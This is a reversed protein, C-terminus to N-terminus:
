QSEGIRLKIESSNAKLEPAYMASARAPLASFRGPVEARLRYAVSHAGRALARVFFAVREDRFEVYAGLDNGTYGSRVEVPEFGAAKYDEFVVYEYDNKSAIELEIEVLDGSKVEGDNALPVRRYKEVKQALVQGRDGAATATAGEERELKYVKREVKVELGAPGILDELTFNTLYANFYVPGTGTRRLELQHEGATLDAGSVVLRNDFTVLNDRRIKETKLTKGDLVVEVTMDPADEGSATVYDALAEVCVATDRTCNWYTAHKRNNVLYKALRSAREGKPDTAALLKLYYAQAEYESGYWCWWWNNEPIRLYATQNEADQVLFQDINEIVMALKSGDGVKKLALGFMAKAYVPLDIRDRYLYERMDVRDQGADALVLYVFADLADAHRKHNRHGEPLALQAVEGAQYNRLWTVGRELMGAPLKVDNDVARQLGHVVYATTHAWSREGYGSFWGWGGDGCQMSALREVGARVMEKVVAPDFVPNPDEGAPRGWADRGRKWDAARVKDDGIEQANLNTRKAAVDALDIGMRLLVNQTIVTPLFRNLTQETCGYPYGVLYPLADVMSGALTPSFRVELRSQEPRREAPVRLTATASKEEPRVVGSISDTKLMGHVYVPFRMQMADSDEDTLAKMRVIAEGEVVVKVRWDVRAQGGPEVEVSTALAGTAELCGGELELAVAVKKESKLYNHVNASLVVEDKQVFFRPAQLRVIVDKATVVEVSAEGVRTGAGMAWVRTRWATLNEPMTLEVEAEGHADTELAGAWFATDAFNQRVVPQVLAAAGAGGGGGGGARLATAADFDLS